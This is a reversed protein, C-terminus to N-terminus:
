LSTPTLCTHSFHSQQFRPMARPTHYYCVEMTFHGAEDNSLKIASVTVLNM